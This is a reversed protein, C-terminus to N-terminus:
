LRDPGFIDERGPIETRATPLWVKFSSGQGPSSEVDIRGQHRQVIEHTIFLGLGTGGDKRTFFPDFIRRLDNPEIGSGTDSISVLVEDSQTVYRTQITLRGGKPM